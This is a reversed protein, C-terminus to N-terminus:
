KIRCGIHGQFYSPIDWEKSWYWLRRHFAGKLTCIAQLRKPLLKLNLKNDAIVDAVLHSLKKPELNSHIRYLQNQFQFLQNVTEYTILQDSNLEFGIEFYKDLNEWSCNLFHRFCDCQRNNKMFQIEKAM